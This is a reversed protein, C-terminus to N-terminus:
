IYLARFCVSNINFTSISIFFTPLFLIKVRPGQTTNTCTGGSLCPIRFCDLGLDTSFPTEETTGRFFMQSTSSTWDFPSSPFYPKTTWDTPYQSTVNGGTPFFVDPFTPLSPSTGFVWSTVEHTVAAPSYSLETATFDTGRSPTDTEMTFIPKSSTVDDISMTYKQDDTSSQATSEQSVSTMESSSYSVSSLTTTDSVTQLSTFDDTKTEPDGSFTSSEENLETSYFFTPVHTTLDTEWTTFEITSPSGAFFTSSPSFTFETFNTVLSIKTSLAETTRPSETVNPVVTYFNCNLFGDSATQCECFRGTYEAACSCSYSDM